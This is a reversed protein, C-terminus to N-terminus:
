RPDRDAHDHAPAEAADQGTPPETNLGRPQALKRQMDAWDVDLPRPAHPGLKRALAEVSAEREALDPHSSLWETLPLDAADGQQARMVAFFEAMARPSLGSAHLTRVGRADAAREQDRGYSTLAGTRAAELVLASLGAMDGLALEVVAAIGLSQVMRELGHRLSVHAMEHAVVGAVQQPADAAELLGTYVVIEGGPLAFANVTDSRVVQVHFSFAGAGAHQELRAVIRQVPEVIAPDVVPAGGLDMSNVALEGLQEDFSAPMAKVASRALAVTGFYLGVVVAATVVATAAWRIASRRRAERHAQRVAAVRPGLAPHRALAEAFSPDESFLTLAGDASRVFWVRGSAGGVDLQCGAIDVSVYDGDASTAGVRDADVSMRAAVRGGTLQNSFVGGKMAALTADAYRTRPPRVRCIIAAGGTGHWM